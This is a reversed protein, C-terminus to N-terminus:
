DLFRKYEEVVSNTPMDMRVQDKDLWIARTCIDCISQGNHSVLIITAGSRLLEKMSLTLATVSVAHEQNM